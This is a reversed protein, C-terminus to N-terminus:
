NIEAGVKLSFMNSPFLCVQLLYRTKKVYGDLSSVPAAGPITAQIILSIPLVYYTGHPYHRQNAQYTCKKQKSGCGLSTLFAWLETELVFAM